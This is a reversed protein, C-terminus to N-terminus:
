DGGFAWTESGLFNWTGSAGVAAVGAPLHGVGLRGVFVALTATYVVLGLATVAVYRLYQRSRRGDAAAFTLRRHLGFNWTTGAAFAALGALLYHVAHVAAAFTAVNVAAGTAGVAAFEAVRVPRQPCVLRDLGVRRLSRRARREVRERAPLM